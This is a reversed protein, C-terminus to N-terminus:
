ISSLWEGGISRLTAALGPHLPRPLNEKQFWGFHTHENNALPTFQQEIPQVYTHFHIGNTTREDVKMALHNGPVGTEEASERHAAHKPTENEELMGAPISWQGTDARKMLLMHGSPTHFLIGAAERAADTQERHFILGHDQGWTFRETRM